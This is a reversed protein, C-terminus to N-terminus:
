LNNIIVQDKDIDTKLNRLGNTIEEYKDQIVTPM